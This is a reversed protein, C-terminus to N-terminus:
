HRDVCPLKVIVNQQKPLFVWVCGSCPCTPLWVIPLLMWSSTAPQGGSVQGELQSDGTTALSPVPFQGGAEKTPALAVPSGHTDHVDEQPQTAGTM